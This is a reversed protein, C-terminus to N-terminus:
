DPYAMSLEETDCVDTRWQFIKAEAMQCSGFTVNSTRVSAALPKRFVDEPLGRGAGVFYGSVKVSKPSLLTEKIKMKLQM